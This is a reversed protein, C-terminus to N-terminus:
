LFRPYPPASVWQGIMRALERPLWGIPNDLHRHTAAVWCQLWTWLDDNIPLVAMPPLRYRGNLLLIPKAHEGPDIFHLKEGILVLEKGDSSRHLWRISGINSRHPKPIGLTHFGNFNSVRPFVILNGNDRMAVYNDWCEMIDVYLDDSELLTLGTKHFVSKNTLLDYFNGLGIIISRLGDNLLIACSADRGAIKIVKYGSPIAIPVPEPKETRRGDYLEGWYMFQGDIVAFLVNAQNWFDRVGSLQTIERPAYAYWSDYAPWLFRMVNYGWGWWTHDRCHAFVTLDSYTLRTVPKPIALSHFCDGGSSTGRHMKWGNGYSYVRGIRTVIFIGGCAAHVQNICSFDAFDLFHITPGPFPVKILVLKSGDSLICLNNSHLLSM